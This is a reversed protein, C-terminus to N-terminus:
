DTADAFCCFTAVALPTLSSRLHFEQVICSLMDRNPVLSRFQTLLISIPWDQRQNETVNRYGMAVARFALHSVLYVIQLFNFDSKSEKDFGQMLLVM